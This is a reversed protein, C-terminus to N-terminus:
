VDRKSAVARWVLFGGFGLAMIPWHDMIDWLYIDFYRDFVGLLGIGALLVGPLLLGNGGVSRLADRESEPVRGLNILTAQRYADFINFLWFFILAPILFALDEDEKVASRSVCSRSSFSSFRSGAATSVTTCM